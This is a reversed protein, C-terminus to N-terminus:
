SNEACNVAAILATRVDRETKLLGKWLSVNEGGIGRERSRTSQWEKLGKRLTREGNYLIDTEECLEDESSARQEWPKRPKRCYKFAHFCRSNADRHWSTCSISKQWGALILFTLCRADCYLLTGVLYSPALLTRKFSNTYRITKNPIELFSM